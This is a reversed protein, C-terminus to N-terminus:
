FSQTIKTYFIKSATATLGHTSYRQRQQQLDTHADPVLVQRSETNCILLSHSFPVKWSFVTAIFSTLLYSVIRYYKKTRLLFNAKFRVM